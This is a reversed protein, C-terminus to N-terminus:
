DLEEIDVPTPQAGGFPSHAHFLDLVCRWYPLYNKPGQPGPIILVPKASGKKYMRKETMTACRLMFLQTGWPLFRRMEVGDSCIEFPWM